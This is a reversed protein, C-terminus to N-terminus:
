TVNGDNTVTIDYSIVEGVTSYTQPTAVKTISFEFDQIISTTVDAEKQGTQDTNVFATNTIADGADIMAQTVQYSANYVWSENTDLNGDENTDGSALVLPNVDNTLPDTVVVGTLPTNGPNTVTIIYNLTTPKDIEDFDVTKTIAVSCDNITLTVATRELSVCGDASVAEAYFTETGVSNLTPTVETLSELSAYWRYTIGEVETIADSANLTQIPDTACQTLNGTSVPAVPADNVIVEVPQIVFCGEESIAKIYYTGSVAVANASTLVDTGEANTYYELSTFGSSGATVAAATLDVTGPECVAAPNTITLVPLPNVTISVAVRESECQNNGVQAVWVTYTDPTATDTDVTPVAEFPLDSTQSDYYVLSYGEDATIDYGQSGSGFCYVENSFNTPAPASNPKTINFTSINKCDRGDSTIVTYIGPGLNTQNQNTESGEPIIGGNTATWSFTFNGDGGSVNTLTITGAGEVSCDDDIRTASVSVPNYVTVIKDLFRTQGGNTATLRVTYTGATTYTHAPNLQESPTSGDGFDWSYTYTNTNGGTTLNIFDVSLDDCSLEFNFNAVLPTQVILGTGSWYCQANGLTASCNGDGANGTTWTMYINKIELKDGYEWSFDDIFQLGDNQGNPVNVGSFRCLTITPGVKQDNIFIDYQIYLNYANKSSGGFDFWIQGEVLEGIEYEENPDLVQSNSGRFEIADISVNNQPCGPPNSSDIILPVNGIINGQAYSTNQSVFYSLLFVLYTFSKIYTKM